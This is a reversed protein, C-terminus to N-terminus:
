KDILAIAHGRTIRREHNNQDKRDRSSAHCGLPEPGGHFKWSHSGPPRADEQYVRNLERNGQECARRPIAPYIVPRQKMQTVMQLRPDRSHNNIEEGSEDEVPPMTISVFRTKEPARKMLNVMGSAPEFNQGAKVFV